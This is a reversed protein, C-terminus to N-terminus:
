DVSLSGTQLDVVLHKGATEIFAQDGSSNLTPPSTIWWGRTARQVVESMPVALVEQITDLDYQALPQNERSLVVVAFRSKVNIWEDLLLVNGQSGVIAYRPGYEHALSRSWLLNRQTGEQEFLEAIAHKSQWDDPTSLVLVYRQNPSSFEGRVPPLSIRDATSVQKVNLMPQATSDSHLIKSASIQGWYDTLFSVTILVGFLTCFITLWKLRGSLALSSLPKPM